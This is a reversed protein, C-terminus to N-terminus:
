NQYCQLFYSLESIFFIFYLIGSHRWLGSGHLVLFVMTAGQLVMQYWVRIVLINILNMEVDFITSSFLYLCNKFLPLSNPHLMDFLWISEGFARSLNNIGVSIYICIVFLSVLHNHHLTIIHYCFFFITM